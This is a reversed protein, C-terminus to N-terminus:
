LPVLRSIWIRENIIIEARDGLASLATEVNRRTGASFSSETWTEALKAELETMTRAHILFRFLTRQELRYIRAKLVHSVADEAQQYEIYGDEEEIVGATVREIGDTVEVRAPLSSPHIDVLWGDGPQLLSHIIELAHVM